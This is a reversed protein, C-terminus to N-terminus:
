AAEAQAPAPDIPMSAVADAEIEKVFDIAAQPTPPAAPILSVRGEM